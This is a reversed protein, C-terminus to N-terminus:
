RQFQPLSLVQGSQITGHQLRNADKLAEVYIRTDMQEPKHELAISWLTDGATVVVQQNLVVPEDGASATFVVSCGAIFVSITILMKILAGHTMQHLSHSKVYSISSKAPLAQGHEHISKYTSYRM